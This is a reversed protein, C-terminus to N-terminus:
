SCDSWYFYKHIIINFKNLCIAVFPQFISGKSNVADSLNLRRSEFLLCISESLDCPNMRLGEKDSNIISLGYIQPSESGMILMAVKATCFQNSEVM